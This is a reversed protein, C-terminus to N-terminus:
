SPQGPLWLRQAPQGDDVLISWTTGVELFIAQYANREAVWVLLHPNQSARIKLTGKTTAPWSQMESLVPIQVAGVTRDIAQDIPDPKGNAKRRRQRIDVPEPM